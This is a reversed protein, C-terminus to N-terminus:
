DRINYHETKDEMEPDPWISEMIEFHELIDFMVIPLMNHLYSMVNKPHNINMFPLHMAIQLANVMTLMMSFVSGFFANFIFTGIITGKLFEKGYASL